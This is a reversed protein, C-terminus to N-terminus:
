RIAISRAPVGVVRDGSPVDRILVSGAGVVAHAGISIGPIVRVGVGLFAGEGVTVNGALNCGPGVHADDGIVCDHDITAGTNVIANVGVSAKANVIAGAMVASGPGIVASKSVVAFPSVAEALMFGKAQAMRALRARVSNIGVAAVAYQIGQQFLADLVDDDGLYPLGTPPDAAASFDVYGALRYTNREALIEAVVKAHGGGGLLIVSRSVVTM